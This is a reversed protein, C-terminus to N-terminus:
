PRVSLGSSLVHQTASLVPLLLSSAFLFFSTVGEYDTLQLRSYLSSDGKGVGRWLSTDKKKCSLSWSDLKTVFNGSADVAYSSKNAAASKQRM